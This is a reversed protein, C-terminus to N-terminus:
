TLIVDFDRGHLTDGPGLANKAMYAAAAHIDVITLTRTISAFEEPPAIAWGALDLKAPLAVSALLGAILDRRNM